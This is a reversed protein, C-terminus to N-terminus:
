KKLTNTSKKLSVGSKRKQVNSREVYPILGPATKVLAYLMPIDVWIPALDNSRYGIEQKAENLTPSLGTASIPLFILDNAFSEAAAVFDPAYKLLLERVRESLKEVDTKILCHFVKKDFTRKEVLKLDDTKVLSKWVDFKPLVVILPKAFKEQFSMNKLARIRSIMEFFVTQQRQSSQRKANEESEFLQPDSSFESCVGRFKYDQLLDFLFFVCASQALHRTVPAIASDSNANALYSEGSNDYLCLTRGRIKGNNPHDNGPLLAFVFPKPYITPKENIRVFDYLDGANKDTAEQKCYRNESNFQLTEFEILRQNSTSDADSFSLMFKSPLAYRLANTSSTLYYTKGSAPAGVISMFLTKTELACQPVPLSCRPCAHKTCPKGGRDIAKGDATFITPLFRRYDNAGLRSDGFQDYSEAIWLTEEPLFTQWCHPCVIRNLLNRKQGM